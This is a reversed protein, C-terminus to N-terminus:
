ASVCPAIIVVGLLLLLSEAQPVGDETWLNQLLPEAGTEAGLPCAFMGSLYIASM